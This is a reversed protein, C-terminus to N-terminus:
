WPSYACCAHPSVENWKGTSVVKGSKELRTCSPASKWELWNLHQRVYWLDLKFPALLVDKVTKTKIVQSYFSMKQVSVNSLLTRLIRTQYVTSTQNTLSRYFWATKWTQLVHTQNTCFGGGVGHGCNCGRVWRVFVVIQPQNNVTKRTDTLKIEMQSHAAHTKPAVDRRLNPKWNHCIELCLKLTLNWRAIIKWNQLTDLPRPDLADTPNTGDKNTTELTNPGGHWLISMNM